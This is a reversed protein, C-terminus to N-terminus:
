PFEPQVSAVLRQLFQRNFPANWMPTFSREVSPIEPEEKSSTVLHSRVNLSFSALSMFLVVKSFDTTSYFWLTDELHSGLLLNLLIRWALPPVRYHVPPNSVYREPNPLSMVFLCQCTRTFFPTLEAPFGAM